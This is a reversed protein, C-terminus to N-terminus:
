KYDWHQSFALTKTTRVAVPRSKEVKEIAKGHELVSNAM